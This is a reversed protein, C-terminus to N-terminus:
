AVLLDERKAPELLQLQATLLQAAVGFAIESELEAGAARLVRMGRARAADLAAEYLRTKGMGAHGEILLSAGHGARAHDLLEDIATLTEDRELLGTGGRVSRGRRDPSETISMPLKQTPVVWIFPAKVICTRLDPSQCDFFQPSRRTRVNKGPAISTAHIVGGDRLQLKRDVQGGFWDGSRHGDVALCGAPEVAPDLEDGRDLGGAPARRPLTSLRQASAVSHGSFVPTTGQPSPRPTSRTKEQSTAAQDRQLSSSRPRDTPCQPRKLPALVNPRQALCPHPTPVSAPGTTGGTPEPSTSQASLRVGSVTACTDSSFRM